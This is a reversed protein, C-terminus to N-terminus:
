TTRGVIRLRFPKRTQLNLLKPRRLDRLVDAAVLQAVADLFERTARPIPEDSCAILYPRYALNLLRQRPRKLM